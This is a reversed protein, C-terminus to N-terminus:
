SQSVASASEGLLKPLSKLYQFFSDYPQVKIDEGLQKRAADELQDDIFLTVDDHTV